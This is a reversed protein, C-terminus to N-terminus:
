WSCKPCVFLQCRLGELLIESCTHYMESHIAELCLDCQFHALSLPNHPVINIEQDSPCVSGTPEFHRNFSPFTAVDVSLTWTPHCSHGRGFRGNLGEEFGVVTKCQCWVVLL